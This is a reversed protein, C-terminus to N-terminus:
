PGRLDSGAYLVLKERVISKKCITNRGVSSCQSKRLIGNWVMDGARTLAAEKQRSHKVEGREVLSHEM